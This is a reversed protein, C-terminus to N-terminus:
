PTEEEGALPKVPINCKYYAVAVSPSEAFHGLRLAGDDITLFPASGLDAQIVAPIVAVSGDMVLGGRVHRASSTERKAGALPAPHAIGMVLRQFEFVVRSHGSAERHLARHSTANDATPPKGLFRPAVAAGTGCLAAHRQRATETRGDLRALIDVILPRTM